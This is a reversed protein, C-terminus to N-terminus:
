GVFGHPNSLKKQIKRWWPITRVYAMRAFGALHSSVQHIRIYNHIEAGFSLKFRTIGPISVGGMDYWAQGSQVAWQLARWQLLNNPRLSEYSQRSAGSLYFVFGNYALLVIGAILKGHQRAVFMKLMDSNGLAAWMKLYFTADLHPTRNATAYVEECLRYYAPIIEPGTVPLVEAIEREGKRIATRCSGSLSRWLDNCTCGRLDIRATQCTEITYGLQAIASPDAIAHAFAMEIHNIHRRSSWERLASLTAVLHEPECLPGLHPTSAIVRMLPSGALHFPGLQRLQLPLVGVLQGNAWIGLPAWALGYLQQLLDLWVARHFLLAHPHVAVFNDWQQRELPHLSWSAM